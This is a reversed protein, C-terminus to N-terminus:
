LVEWDAEAKLIGDMVEQTTGNTCAMCWRHFELLWIKKLSIKLEQSSFDKIQNTVMEATVPEFGGKEKVSM